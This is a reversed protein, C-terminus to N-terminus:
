QSGAAQGGQPNFAYIGSAPRLGRHLMEILWYNGYPMVDQKPFLTNWRSKGEGVGWSGHLMVGGPSVYNRLLELESRDALALGDAVDIGLAACRRLAILGILTGCSDRPIDAHCPDDYDYSLIADEPMRSVYWRAAKGLAERIRADEFSELCSVLSHMMWTQGRAWTSDPKYGQSTDAGTIGGKASDFLLRHQVSGDPRLMGADLTAHVHDQIRKFQGASHRRAWLVPLLCAPTEAVTADFWVSQWYLRAPACYLGEMAEAGALALELMRPDRTIEFGLCIGHYIDFGINGRDVRTGKV